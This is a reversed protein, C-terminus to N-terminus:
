LDRSSIMQKLVAEIRHSHGERFTVSPISFNNMKSWRSSRFNVVQRGCPWGRVEGKRGLYPGGIHPFAQPTVGTGVGITSRLSAFCRCQGTRVVSSASIVWRTLNDDSLSACIRRVPRTYRLYRCMHVACTCCRREIACTCQGGNEADYIYGQLLSPGCGLSVTLERM